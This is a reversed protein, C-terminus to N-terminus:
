KGTKAKPKPRGSAGEARHATRARYVAAAILGAALVGQALGLGFIGPQKFLAAIAVLAAIVKPAGNIYALPMYREPEFVLLSLMAASGLCALGLLRLDVVVAESASAGALDQPMALLLFAFALDVLGVVVAAIRLIKM